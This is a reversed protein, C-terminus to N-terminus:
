PRVMKIRIGLKMVMKNTIFAASHKINRHFNGLMQVLIGLRKHRALDRDHVRKKHLRRRIRASIRLFRCYRLIRSFM